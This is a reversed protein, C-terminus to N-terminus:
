IKLKFSNKTNLTQKKPSLLAKKLLPIKHEINPFYDFSNLKLNSAFKVKNKNTFKKTKSKALLNNEINEDDNYTNNKNKDKNIFYLKLNIDNLSNINNITETNHILPM